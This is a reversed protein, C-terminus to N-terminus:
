RRIAKRVVSRKRKKPNPCRPCIAELARRVEPSDLDEAFTPLPGGDLTKQLALDFQNKSVSYMIGRPGIYRCKMAAMAQGIHLAEEIQKTNFQKFAAVGNKGLQHIIGATCWDGAGAADKLDNVAYPPLQKWRSPRPRAGVIRYRLGEDGLTEIELKRGVSKDLSRFPGVREHSYKVIDSLQLAQRFLQGDKIGNPEFVILAGKLSCAHALSLASRSVRDFFFVNVDSLANSIAATQSSLLTRYGPLWAGCNPCTWIFRHRPTGDPARRIREVIIPTHRTPNRSLFPLQVGFREFDDVIKAAAIDSGLTAAPYSQWGLYALVALVNGCTGGAWYNPTPDAEPGLVVDLSILGTGVISPAPPRAGSVTRHNSRPSRTKM